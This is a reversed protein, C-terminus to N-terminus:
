EPLGKSRRILYRVGPPTLNAARGIERLSHGAEQAQILAARFERECDHRHEAAEAVADLAAPNPTMQEQGAELDYYHPDRNDTSWRLLRLSSAGREDPHNALRLTFM